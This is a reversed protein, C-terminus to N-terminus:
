VEPLLWCRCNIHPKRPVTHIPFVKGDLRDCDTCVKEDKFTVWRVRKVGYDSYAQRMAEYNIDICFQRVQRAYIKMASIILAARVAKQNTSMLSEFCRMRKRAVENVYVYGTIPNYGNIFNRFWASDINLKRQSEDIGLWDLCDSYSKEAINQMARQSLIEAEEYVKNVAELTHLEDFDATNLSRFLVVFAANLRKIM